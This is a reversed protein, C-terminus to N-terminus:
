SKKQYTGERRRLEACADIFAAWEALEASLEAGEGSARARILEVITEWSPLEPSVGECAAATPNEANAAERRPCPADAVCTSVPAAM